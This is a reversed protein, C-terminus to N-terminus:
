ELALAAAAVPPAELEPLAGLAKTWATAIGGPCPVVPQGGGPSAEGALLPDAAQLALDAAGIRRPLDPLFPAARVRERVPLPMIPLVDTASRM